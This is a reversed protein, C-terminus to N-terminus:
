EARYYLPIHIAKRQSGFPLLNKEHPEQLTLPVLHTVQHCLHHDVLPEIM